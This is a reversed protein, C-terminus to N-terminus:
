LSGPCKTAYVFGDIIDTSISFNKRGGKNIISNSIM